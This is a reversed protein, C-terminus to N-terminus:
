AVEPGRAKREAHIRDRAEAIARAPSSVHTMVAERVQRAIQMCLHDPLRNARARSAAYLAAGRAKATLSRHMPIVQGM